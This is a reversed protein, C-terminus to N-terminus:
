PPNDALQCAVSVLVALQLGPPIFQGICQTNAVLVTPDPNAGALKAVLSILVPLQMGTPVCHEICQANNVLTQPDASM